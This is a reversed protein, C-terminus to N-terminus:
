AVPHVLKKALKGAVGSPEQRTPLEPRLARRLEVKAM